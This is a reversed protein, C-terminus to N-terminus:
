LKSEVKTLVAKILAIRQNAKEIYEAKDGRREYEPIVKETIMKQMESLFAELLRLHRRNVHVENVDHVSALVSFKKSLEKILPNNAKKWEQDSLTARAKMMRDVMNSMYSYEEKNLELKSM